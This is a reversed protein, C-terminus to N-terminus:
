SLHSTITRSKLVLGLNVQLEATGATAVPDRWDKPLTHIVPLASIDETKHCMVEHQIQAGSSGSQFCLNTFM